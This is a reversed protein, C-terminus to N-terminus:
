IKFDKEDSILIDEAVVNEDNKTVASLHCDHIPYIGSGPIMVFWVDDSDIQISETVIDGSAKRFRIDGIAPNPAKEKIISLTTEAPAEKFLEPSWLADIYRKSVWVPDGPRYKEKM